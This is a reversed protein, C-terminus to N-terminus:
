YRQFVKPNKNFTMKPLFLNIRETDNIKLLTMRKPEISINLLYIIKPSYHIQFLSLKILASMLCSRLVIKETFPPSLLLVQKSVQDM